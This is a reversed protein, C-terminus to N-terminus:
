DLFEFSNILNEFDPEAQDGIEEIALVSIKWIYGQYDIYADWCTL